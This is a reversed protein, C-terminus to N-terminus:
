KVGESYDYEKIKKMMQPLDPQEDDDLGKFQNKTIAHACPGIRVWRAGSKEDALIRGVVDVIGCLEPAVKKFCKPFLKSELVGDKRQTELPAEWANFVVNIDSYILDRFLHLTERMKFGADGYERIETFEKGRMKTLKLIIWQELESVNDIVVNKFPHKETRLYQYLDDLDSLDHKLNFVVHNTGLLPGLGAETNIILTEGAPLTSALTTKGVGPDGYIVFSIGREITTGAKEFKLKM